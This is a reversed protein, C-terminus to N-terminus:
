AGAALRTRPRIRCIRIRRRVRNPSRLVKVLLGTCRVEDRHSTSFCVGARML